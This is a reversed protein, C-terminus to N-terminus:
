RHCDSQVLWIGEPSKFFGYERAVAPRRFIRHHLYPNVGELSCPIVRGALAVPASGLLIAVALALKTKTLMERGEWSRVFISRRLHVRRSHWNELALRSDIAAATAAFFDRRRSM